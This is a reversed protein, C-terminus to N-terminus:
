ENIMQNNLCHITKDIFYDNGSLGSHGDLVWVSKM